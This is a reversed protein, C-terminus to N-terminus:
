RVRCTFRVVGGGGPPLPDTLEWRLVLSGAENPKTSFTGKLSGQASGAVFELRTTLSDVITVNGIKQDGVNDFRITFDVTEGPLASGTSAVKCVQLKPHTPFDVTYEAQARAEGIATAAKQGEMMVEVGQKGTWTIANQISQALLPKDEETVIGARIYTFDEYPKIRDSVAAIAQIGALDIGKQLEVAANARKTGIEGNPQVDQASTVPPQSEDAQSPKIPQDIRVPGAWEADAFPIDMKRVAAFRPAYICVRNSPEVVTRGDITDYHVLTDEAELGDLLWDARVKVGASQPGGDCIYEDKPWPGSIGPPKWPGFTACPCPPASPQGQQMGPAMFEPVYGPETAGDGPYGTYAERPLGETYQAQRVREASDAPSERSTDDAASFTAASFTDPVSNTSPPRQREAQSSNPEQCRKQEAGEAGKTFLMLPPSNYMFVPDPSEPDIPVRGGIRLIAMPRGLRDAVILPDDKPAVDFWNQQPRGNPGPIALLPDELYIIRTIFRGELALKLDQESLEIPVPFRLEQGRPPYLRNILEITPFLEAGEHLPIRTVRLRYVPGILLATKLPAPSPPSFHNEVAASVSVGAPAIIEVPQFYGPLPGGRLLQRAGIAGPPIPGADLYHVVPEDAPLKGAVSALAVLVCALWPAVRRLLVM